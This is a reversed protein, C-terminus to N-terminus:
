KFDEYSRIVAKPIDGTYKPVGVELDFTALTKFTSAQGMIPSTKPQNLAFMKKKDLNGPMSFRDFIGM